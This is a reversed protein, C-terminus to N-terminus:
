NILGRLWLRYFGSINEIHDKHIDRQKSIFLHKRKMQKNLKVTSLGDCFYLM